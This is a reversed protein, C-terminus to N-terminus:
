RRPRAPAPWARGSRERGQQVHLSVSVGGAPHPRGHLHHRRRQAELLSRLAAVPVARLLSSSCAPGGSDSAGCATIAARRRGAGAETPGPPSLGASDGLDVVQQGPRRHGPCPCGSRHRRVAGHRQVQLHQLMLGSLRRARAPRAWTLCRRTASISSSRAPPSASAACCWGPIRRDAEPRVPSCWAGEPWGQPGAAPVAAAPAPRPGSSFPGPSAARATLASASYRLTSSDIGALVTARCPRCRM